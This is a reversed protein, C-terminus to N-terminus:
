LNMKRLGEGNFVFVNEQLYGDDSAKNGGGMRSGKDSLPKPADVHRAWVLPPGATSHTSMM